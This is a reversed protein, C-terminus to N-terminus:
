RSSYEVEKLKHNRRVSGPSAGICKKFARSFAAESQYGLHDALESLPANSEKLLNEAVHMRWRRLYQMPPEGVLAMFRAAFASRSMGVEIALSELTWDRVPDHHVLGIAKGIQADQLAAFWGSNAAPDSELWTRIAQIVLIDLVRTIVADGGIRMARAESIMLRLTSQIWENEISGTEIRIIEPLMEIIRQAVPHELRVAGCILTTPDGGGGHRLLEYRESILERPLDFLKATESGPEGTLRHGKGHPVLAFEGTQLMCEEAGDLEVWCRGETVIHFM